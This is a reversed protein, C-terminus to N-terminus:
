DLGKVFEGNGLPIPGNRSSATTPPSQVDQSPEELISRKRTYFQLGDGVLMTSPEQVNIQLTGLNNGTKLGPNRSGNIARAFDVKISRRPASAISVHVILTESLGPYGSISLALESPPCNTGQDHFEFTRCDPYSHTRPPSACEFFSIGQRLRACIFEMDDSSTKAAKVEAPNATTAREGTQPPSTQSSPALEKAKPAGNRNCAALAVSLVSSAFLRLSERM